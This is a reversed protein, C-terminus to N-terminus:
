LVAWCALANEHQLPVTCETDTLVHPVTFFVRVSADVLSDELLMIQWTDAENRAVAADLTTMPALGIPYEVAVLLSRGVVWTPPVDFLGGTIGTVVASTERPADADYQLLAQALTRERLLPDALDSGLSASRIKDQLLQKITALSM